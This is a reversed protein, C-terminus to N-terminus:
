YHGRWRLRHSQNSRWLSHPFYTLFIELFRSRRQSPLPLVTTPHLNLLGVWTSVTQDPAKGSDHPLDPTIWTALANAQLEKQMDSIIGYSSPM